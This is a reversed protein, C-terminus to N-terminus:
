KQDLAKDMAVRFLECDPAPDYRDRCFFVMASLVAAFNIPWVTGYTMDVAWRERKPEYPDPTVTVEYIETDANYKVSYFVGAGAVWYNVLEKREPLARAQVKAVLASAVDENKHPASQGCALFSGAATSLLVVWMFLTM